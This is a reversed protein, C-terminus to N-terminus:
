LVGELELLRRKMAAGGCGSYGRLTGSSGIVRHCPVILPVRNRAMVAGVARAAQPSGANAALQGYTCTQGYGIRRCQQLVTEQFRTVRHSALPIDLFEDRGGNAYARLREALRCADRSAASPNREIDVWGSPAERGSPSLELLAGAAAAGDAFGFVLAHLQEARWAVAFWGLSSSFAFIPNIDSKEVALQRPM